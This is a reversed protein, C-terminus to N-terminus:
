FVFGDWTGTLQFRAFNIVGILVIAMTLGGTMPVWLNRWGQYTQFRKTVSVLGVTMVLTMTIVVGLASILGMVLLFTPRETLVIAIVLSAVLSLGALEKLNKIMPVDQGGDAWMSQNFIPFVLNMLTIGCFVGTILRLWNRPAYPGIYGDFLHFYSNLGDIGMVVVFLALFGGVKLGPLRSARARGSAITVGLATMAGLYIGTCRACLPLPRGDIAFSRTTIRHCIAYGVADAKGLAGGPTSLMWLGIIGLAVALVFWITRRSYQEMRVM